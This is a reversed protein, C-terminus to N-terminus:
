CSVTRCISARSAQSRRRSSRAITTSSSHSSTRTAPPRRAGFAALLVGGKLVFAERDDCTALRRLFGELAYLVALQEFGRGTSRALSQLALYQEGGPQSQSVKV